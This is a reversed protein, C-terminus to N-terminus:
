AMIPTILEGHATSSEPSWGGDPDYLLGAKLLPGLVKSREGACLLVVRLVDDDLNVVSM